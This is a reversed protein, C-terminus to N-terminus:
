CVEPHLVWAGMPVEGLLASFYALSDTALSLTKAGSNSGLMCCLLQLASPAIFAGRHGFRGWAAMQLALAWTHSQKAKQYVRGALALAVEALEPTSPNIQHSIVTFRLMPVLKSHM